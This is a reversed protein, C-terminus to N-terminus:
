WELEIAADNEGDGKRTHKGGLVAKSFCIDETADSNLIPHFTLTEAYDYVDGGLTSPMLPTSSESGDDAWPFAVVQNERTLERLKLKGSAKMGLIRRGMVQGFFQSAQIEKTVLELNIEPDDVLGISSGKFKVLYVVVGTNAVDVDPPPPTPESM